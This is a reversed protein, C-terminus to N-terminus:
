QLTVLIPILRRDHCAALAKGLVAGFARGPDEARMAHGPTQSTTLLDGVAVPARTGDVKCYVKGVLAVPIRGTGDDGPGSDMIVAPRFAGAGSVVGAVRRDYDSDGVRLGGTHDLVMVTGPPAVVQNVADFHEACDAGAVRIDGTVVIDGDFFGAMGGPNHGSIGAHAPNHSLGFVGDFDKSEGVVGANTDSHGYVGQYDPSRGVVGRRGSGVVGDGGPNDGWVGAGTNGPTTNTGYVGSSQSGKTAAFVAHMQESEGVVGANTGSHGYVGGSGVSSGEVGHGGTSAGYVGTGNGTVGDNDTRAEGMVGITGVGGKAKGYVGVWTASEGVVGANNDSHGYVGQFDTSTGVVGKSKTSGGEVGHGHEAFGHVALGGDSSTNTADVAPTAAKDSTLSIPTTM